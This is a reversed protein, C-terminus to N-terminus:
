NELRDAKEKSNFSSCNFTKTLIMISTQPSLVEDFLLQHSPSCKIKTDVLVKLQEEKL